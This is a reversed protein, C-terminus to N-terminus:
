TGEHIAIQQPLSCEPSPHQREILREFAQWYLNGFSHMTYHDASEPNLLYSTVQQGLLEQRSILAHACKQLLWKARDNLDDMVPSHSGVKDVAGELATYAVHAKLQSKTIYDTVYYLVAKASPGSGVFQIDMNCQLGELMVDNYNNVLGDLHCLVIDGTEPEVYRWEIVNDANLGFRCVRPEPPGKWYKFCTSLHCHVQCCQVLHFQDKCRVCLVDDDEGDLSPGRIACPHFRGLPVELDPDPDAPISSSIVNDLYALLRNRFEVDGNDRVRARIQDVNLSGRVWVLMHCHLSGHDQTEVCGYYAEIDGLVGASSMVDASQDCRLLYAIFAWIYNNFFRAALVPNNAILVSQQWYQPVETATLQDINITEGVMVKVVPNFVDAPNITIYFSPLGKEIILGWIKNRMVVHGVGSGAMQQMVLSVEKLLDRVQSEKSMFNTVFDGSAVYDAVTRVTSPSVRSFGVKFADILSHKVKLSCRLLIRWYQLINFVTLIFLYHTQFWHHSLELLHRVHHQMLIQGSRAIEECAGLGYPFLTPYIMPLLSPNNIDGVPKTAHLFHIYGKGKMRVHDLAAARLVHPPSNADVETVVISEFLDAYSRVEQEDGTSLQELNCYSSTVADRGASAPILEIHVPLLDVDDLHDLVPINLVIDKYYPNHHKLWLLAGLVKDRRVILPRAHALMWESTLLCSGVFIICIPTVVEEMSPPLLDVVQEPHQPFVIVHGRLGWQAPSSASSGQENLQIIWLKAHCRSIMAEEVVMLNCLEEPVIGIYMHNALALDPTQGRLLGSVCTRCLMLASIHGQSVVLGAPEVLVDRLEPFPLM